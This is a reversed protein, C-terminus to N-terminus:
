EPYIDDETEIIKDKGASRLIFSDKKLRYDFENGFWDITLNSNQLQLDNLSTPYFGNEDKYNRIHYIITHMKERSGNELQKQYEPSQTIGDWNILNPLFWWLLVFFSALSIGIITKKKGKQKKQNITRISVIGMIIAVLGTFFGVVPIVSIIGLVLVATSLSNEKEM